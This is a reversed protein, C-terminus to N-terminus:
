EGDAAREKNQPQRKWIEYSLDAAERPYSAALADLAAASQRPKMGLLLDMVTQRDKSYLEHLSSAANAPDMGEYAKLLKEFSPAAALSLRKDEATLKKQLADLEAKKKELELTLVGVQRERESLDQTEKDLQRRQDTLEGVLNRYTTEAEVCAADSAPPTEGKERLQPTGGSLDGAPTQAQVQPVIWGLTLADVVLAVNALVAIALLGILVRRM